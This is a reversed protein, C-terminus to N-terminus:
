YIEIIRKYQKAVAHHFEDIIIYDFFDKSFYNENLYAENGLSAVSAFIVSKNTAKVKSNFFGCDDTKRVNKFSTEAQRLIEDRHAVFLVKEYDVSDFAALYTKGVGTAAYVLGKDAGEERSNKLAYLAEIQAGRPQFLAQIKTDEEYNDYRELDKQASPKKWGAAYQKLVVDDIVISHKYFLDEFTKYFLQYNEKDKLNDFRYNWEIGSTLASRSVNSSGIYIESYDNCHFMYAKPHFSREKENFFRLDIKNGLKDKILYLAGPQTIGLYNGTLIRIKTGRNVAEDLDKLIMRVGSEMLFSAIIDIRDARKMSLKLQYLLFRNRSYGGTLADCPSINIETQEEIYNYEEM